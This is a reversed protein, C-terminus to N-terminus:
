DARPANAGAEASGGAPATTGAADEDRVRVPQGDQLAQHGETVVRASDPLTTMGGRGPQAGPLPVYRARGSDVVFVGYDDGRRVLLDAPVRWGGPQAWRLTGSSGPAPAEGTFALRAVRTRSAADVAGSIRLLRLPWDGGDLALTAEAAKELAMAQEAPLRAEVEPRAMDVIRLLPTGPAVASGVQAMRELVVGDFPATIRTKALAREAVARAAERVQAEARAGATEAELAALEDDSVYRDANLQRARLLRAQAQEARARAASAQARAQELALRYDAPDLEVLVRGAKVRSGTEAGIRAVKAAVEATLTSDNRAIVDAAASGGARAAFDQLARASVVAIRDDAAAAPEGSQGGCGSLWLGLACLLIVRRAIGRM